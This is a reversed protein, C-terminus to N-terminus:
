NGSVVLDEVGGAAEGGLHHDFGHAHADRDEHRARAEGGPADLERALGAQCQDPARASFAEDREGAFVADHEILVEGIDLLLARLVPALPRHMAILLLARCGSAMVWRRALPSFSTQHSRGFAVPRARCSSLKVVSSPMNKM